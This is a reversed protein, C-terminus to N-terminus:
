KIRVKVLIEEDIDAHAIVFQSAYSLKEPNSAAFAKMNETVIFKNDEYLPGSNELWRKISASMEWPTQRLPGLDPM